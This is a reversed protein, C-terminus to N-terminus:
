TRPCGQGSIRIVLMAEQDAPHREHDAPMGARKDPHGADNRTRPCGQGSIRIVLMAEQDAPHREHDAPM